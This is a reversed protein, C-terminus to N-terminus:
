RGPVPGTDGDDSRAHCPTHRDPDQDGQGGEAAHQQRGRVPPTGLVGKGAPVGDRRRDRDAGGRMRRPPRQQESSCDWGCHGEGEARRPQAPSGGAPSLWAPGRRAARLLRSLRRGRTAGAAGPEVGADDRRRAAMGSLFELVVRHANNVTLDAHDYAPAVEVVDLAAVDARQALARVVRLLDAPTMGGPEPTGTGPAFGPDLVDIDVSVYLRDAGRM